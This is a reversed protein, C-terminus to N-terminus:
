KLSMSFIPKITSGWVIMRAGLCENVRGIMPGLRLNPESFQTFKRFKRGGHENHRKRAEDRGKWAAAEDSSASGRREVSTASLAREGVNFREGSQIGHHECEEKNNGIIITETADSRHRVDASAEGSMESKRTEDGFQLTAAVRPTKVASEWTM